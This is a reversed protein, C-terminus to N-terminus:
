RIFYMILAVVIWLSYYVVQIKHQQLSKNVVWLPIFTVFGWISILLLSVPIFLFMNLLLANQWLIEFFYMVILMVIFVKKEELKKRFIFYYFILIIVLYQIFVYPMLSIWEGLRAHWVTVYEAILWLIFSLIIYLKGKSLKVTNPINM